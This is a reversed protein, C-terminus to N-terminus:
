NNRKLHQQFENMAEPNGMDWVETAQSIRVELGQQLYKQYVPIVYYEGRTKEKKLIMNDATELFEQGSSFYYLGTSANNSIRVKEAVELVNGSDDTRAFSWRDGPLDAVSILGHCNSSRHSIDYALDSVVLTDASAILLDEDPSIWKRAALVTCLQGETVENLLVVETLDGKLSKLLETVCYNKEHERLAIFVIRSFCIDALSELAWAVMPRDLITILPKPTETYGSFRAGRGAMPVVVIM